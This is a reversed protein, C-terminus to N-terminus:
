DLSQGATKFRIELRDGRDLLVNRDGLSAIELVHGRFINKGSAVRFPSINKRVSEVRYDKNLFFCDIPFSMFFTHICSCDPLFMGEDEKLEKFPILGMLRDGIGDAYYLNELIVKNKTKNYLLAKKM